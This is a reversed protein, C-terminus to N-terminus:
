TTHTIRGRPDVFLISIGTRQKALLPLHEWLKIFQPMDPLAISYDAEPDDLRQLIEGLIALFYNVRMPQRSGQGKVEIVWRKRDRTACIDIGQSQGWAVQVSWGNQNLWNELHRKITEESLFSDCESINEGKPSEIIEASRDRILINKIRGDKKSRLIFGKGELERCSQNVPQQGAGKGLLQDAIERDSLGDHDGLLELIREKFNSM